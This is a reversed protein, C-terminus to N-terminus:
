IKLSTIGGDAHIVQGTIWTSKECLLFMALEAIDEPKGIRKLPHRLANANKKDDTNLLSQALRTETVSPAICNVRISPALEAALSRTLGEIAGKTSSVVTHFPFGAKVAATSFFIVSPCTGKKLRPIVAQLVKVLGIIQLEYDKRFEEPSFRAFPKLNISGPCYVFGDLVEPIFSLGPKEDFVNLKYCAFPLGPKTQHWTGIVEEGNEHLLQGLCKGIGSSAGIILITRM